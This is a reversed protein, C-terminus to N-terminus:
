SEAMYPMADARAWVARALHGQDLRPLGLRRGLRRHLKVADIVVLEVMTIEAIRDLNQRQAVAAGTLEHHTRM